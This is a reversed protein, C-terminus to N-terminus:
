NGGNSEQRVDILELTGGITLTNFKTPGPPIPKAFNVILEGTTPDFAQGKVVHEGHQDYYVQEKTTVLVDEWEYQTQGTEDVLPMRVFGEYENNGTDRLVITQSGDVTLQESFPLHLDPFQFDHITITGADQNYVINGMHANSIDAKYTGVWWGSEEGLAPAAYPQQLGDEPAEFEPIPETVDASLEAGAVAGQAGAGVLFDSGGGSDISDPRSLSQGTGSRETADSRGSGEAPSVGRGVAAISQPRLGIADSDSGAEAGEGILSVIVLADDPDNSHILMPELRSGQETPSFVVPVRVQRGSPILRSKPAGRFPSPVTLSTVSLSDPGYNSLTIWREAVRGVPVKGFDISATDVVLDPAPGEESAEGVLAVVSKPHDPDDSSITLTGRHRGENPPDYAVEVTTREGPQLTAPKFSASFPRRASVHNIELAEHGHNTLTVMGRVEREVQVLGFSLGRPAIALEGPAPAVGSLAASVQAGLEVSEFIVQGDAFTGAVAPEFYLTLEISDGPGLRLASRNAKFPGVVRIRGIDVTEASLNTLLVARAASGGPAVEEFEVVEPSIMLVESLPASGLSSAGGLLFWGAGALALTGVVVLAVVLSRQM